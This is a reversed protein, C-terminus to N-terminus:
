RFCSIDQQLFCNNLASRMIKVDADVSAATCTLCSVFVSRFKTEQSRFQATLYKISEDYSDTGMYERFCAKLSKTKLKKRFVESYTFFVIISASKTFEHSFIRRYELFATFLKSTKGDKEFQDYCSLDACYVFATEKDFYQLVKKLNTGNDITGLDLLWLNRRLPTEIISNLKKRCIVVDNSSPVYNVASIRDVDDFYATLEDFVDSSYTRRCFEAVHEDLWLHKLAIWVDKPVDLPSDQTNFSKLTEFHRKSTASLKVKMIHDLFSRMKTLLLKRMLITYPAVDMTIDEDSINSIQKGYVARMLRAVEAKGSNIAGMMPIRIVRTSSANLRVSCKKSDLKEWTSSRRTFSM